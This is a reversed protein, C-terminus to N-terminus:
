SIGREPRSGTEEYNKELSWCRQHATKPLNVYQLRLCVSTTHAGPILGLKGCAFFLDIVKGYLKQVAVAVRDGAKLSSVDQQLVSALNNARRNLDRSLQLPKGTTLDFVAENDATYLERKTLWDNYNM